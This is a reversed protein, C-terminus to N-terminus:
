EKIYLFLRHNTDKDSKDSHYIDTKKGDLIVDALVPDGYGSEPHPPRKETIVDNFFKLDNLLGSKEIEQTWFDVGKWIKNQEQMENM